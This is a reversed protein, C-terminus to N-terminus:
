PPCHRLARMEGLASAAGEKGFRQRIPNGDLTKGYWEGGEIAFVTELIGLARVPVGARYAVPAYRATRFSNCVARAFPDTAKGIFSVSPLEARGTTDLVFAVLFAAEERRAREGDPYRPTRGEVLQRRVLTDEVVLDTDTWSFSSATLTTGDAPRNASACGRVLLVAAVGLSVRSLPSM